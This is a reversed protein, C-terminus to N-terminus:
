KFQIIICPGALPLTDFQLIWVKWKIFRPHAVRIMDRCQITTRTLPTQFDSTKIHPLPPKCLPVCGQQEIFIAMHGSTWLTAPSIPTTLSASICCLQSKWNRNSQQVCYAIRHVVRMTGHSRSFSISFVSPYPTDSVHSSAGAKPSPSAQGECSSRRLETEQHFLCWSALRQGGTVSHLATNRLRQSVTARYIRKEYSSHGTGVFKSTFVKGIKKNLEYMLSVHRIWHGRPRLRLDAAAQSSLDHTRIGGPPMSTQRNHIDHTTLYLDRRRPSWEHLPTRSVTTRRQTHDQFRLFSSTM